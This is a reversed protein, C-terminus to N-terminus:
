DGIGAEYLEEQRQQTYLRYYAGAQRLLASHTGDEIITGRQIVLIRDCNKITSLRHAIIVCTRGHLMEAIGKQIKAETLTDISSTAEDMILIRPDALLARAFSVLQREGMSLRDGNEGVEEDLRHNFDSAGVMDLAHRLDADTANAKGYQLNARLSGAFLHPTQLVIGLQQRLSRVTKQTYNEHDILIEGGTPEYFRGILNIITSKGEGTAGVLAVSQGAKIKLHFNDLIIKEKQYFFQVNRFEIDGHIRGFDTAQPADAIVVKEDLLSFIREGASLSAQAKAYFTSIDVIPEFIRSAYQYAAILVGVSIGSPVAVVMEGGWFVVAASAVSGTFFVIPLYMAGYFGSQYSARRMTNSLTAFQQGVKQEKGVIKILAAGNINETYAATIESNLRRSERAYRMVLTRVRVSSLLMVPVALLVLLALQWSYWCMASLCFIIMVVGWVIEVLGWSIIECVRDTDSTIRTLLWGSASRDYFSYSLTQLKCFLEHRLDYMVYEQVKGAYKIFIFVGTVQVLTLCMLVGFYPIALSLDPLFSTGAQQAKRLLGLQPTVVEDMLHLLVLPMAADMLAVILTWFLFRLM